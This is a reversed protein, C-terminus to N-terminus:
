GGRADRGPANDSGVPPIFTDFRGRFVGGPVLYANRFVSESKSGSVVFIVLVPLAVTVEVIFVKVDTTGLVMGSVISGSFLCAVFGVFSINIEIRNLGDSEHVHIETCRPM